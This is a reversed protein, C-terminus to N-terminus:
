LSSDPQPRELKERKIRSYLGQRKIGVHKCADAVAWGDQWLKLAQSTKCNPNPKRHRLDGQTLVGHQYAARHVASYSIRVAEAAQSVTWGEKMLALARATRTYPKPPKAKKSVIKQAMAEVVDLPLGTNESVWKPRCRQRLMTRALKRIRAAPSM